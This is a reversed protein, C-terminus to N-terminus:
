QGEKQLDEFYYASFRKENGTIYSIILSEEQQIYRLFGREDSSPHINEYDPHTHAILRLKRTKLLELLDDNFNCHREIGHFVIDKKKGRLLAFEHRTAASLYAIDKTSVSEKEFAAWDNSNPVRNLINKRRETLGAEGNRIAELSKRTSSSSSLLKKDQVEKMQKEKMKDDQRGIPLRIKIGYLQLICTAFHSRYM